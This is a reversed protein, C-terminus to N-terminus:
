LDEKLIANVTKIKGEETKFFLSTTNDPRRIEGIKKVKEEQEKALSSETKVEEKKSLSVKKKSKEIFLKLYDSISNLNIYVKDSPFLTADEEISFGILLKEEEIQNIKLSTVIRSDKSILLATENLLRFILNEKRTNCVFEIHYPPAKENLLIAENVSIIERIMKNFDANSMKENQISLSQNESNRRGIKEEVSIEMLPIGDSYNVTGGSYGSLNEPYIGKLSASVMEYLNGKKEELKWEYRTIKGDAQNVDSFFTKSFSSEYNEEIDEGLAATESVLFDDEKVESAAHDSSKSTLAGTLGLFFSLVIGWFILKWKKGVFVKRWHRPNELYFGLGPVRRRSEYEALKYKNMVFVEETLGKRSIKKLFSDFAFEDSFCPHRKELETCIYHRHKRGPLSIFPIVLEYKEFDTKKVVNSKQMFKVVGM